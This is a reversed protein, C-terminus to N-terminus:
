PKLKSIQQKYGTLQKASQVWVWAIVKEVPYRDQQRWTVNKIDPFTELIPRLQESDELTYKHQEAGFRLAWVPVVMEFGRLATRLPQILEKNGTVEYKQLFKDVTAKVEALKPRYENYSVNNDTALSLNQLAQYAVEADQLFQPDVKAPVEGLGLNAVERLATTVVRGNGEDITVGSPSIDLLQGYVERGNAYRVRVPMIPTAPNKTTVKTATTKTSVTPPPSKTTKKSKQAWGLESNAGIVALITLGLIVKNMIKNPEM